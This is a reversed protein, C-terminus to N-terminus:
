MVEYMAWIDADPPATESCSASARRWSYPSSLGMSTWYKRQILCTTCPCNPMASSHLRGTESTIPSRSHSVITTETAAMMSVHTSASGIPM